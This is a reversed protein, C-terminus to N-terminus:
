RLMLLSTNIRIGQNLFLIILLPPSAPPPRAPPHGTGMGTGGTGATSSPAPVSHTRGPQMMRPQCRGWLVWFPTLAPNTHACAMAPPNRRRCGARRGRTATGAAGAAGNPRRWVRTEMVRGRCLWRGRDIGAGEDGMSQNVPLAWARWARRLEGLGLPAKSSKQQRPGEHSQREWPQGTSHLLTGALDATGARPQTPSPSGWSSGGPTRSSPM